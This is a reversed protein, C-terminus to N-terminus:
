EQVEKGKEGADRPDFFSNSDDSSSFCGVFENPLTNQYALHGPSRTDVHGDGWVVEASAGHRFHVNSGRSNASANDCQKAPYVFAIGGVKGSSADSGSLADAFMVTGSPTKLLAERLGCGNFRDSASQNGYVRNTVKPVTSSRFYAMSGIGYANYGYGSGGDYAVTGAPYTGDSALPAIKWGPCIMPGINSNLYSVIIGDKLVIGSSSRAGYWITGSSSMGAGYGYAPAYWGFDNSYLHNAMGLQRLNGSCSIGKGKERAQSLAPMLMGALIAIIAIVVLLEILTFNRHPTGAHTVGGVLQFSQKM